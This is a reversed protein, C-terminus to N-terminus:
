SFKLGTPTRLDLAQGKLRKNRALCPSSSTPPARFTRDRVERHNRNSTKLNLNLHPARQILCRSHILSLFISGADYVMDKQTMKIRVVFTQLMEHDYCSQWQSSSQLLGIYRCRCPCHFVNLFTFNSRKREEIGHM